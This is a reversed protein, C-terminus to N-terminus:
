LTKWDIGAATLKQIMQPLRSIAEVLETHEEVTTYESGEVVIRFHNIYDIAKDQAEHFKPVIYSTGIFSFIYGYKSTNDQHDISFHWNNSSRIFNNYLVCITDGSKVDVKNNREQDMVCSIIGPNSLNRNM